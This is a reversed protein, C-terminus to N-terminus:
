FLAEKRAQDGLFKALFLNRSLFFRTGGVAVTAILSAGNEECTLAVPLDQAGDFLDLVLASEYAYEPLNCTLM